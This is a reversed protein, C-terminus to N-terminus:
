LRNLNALPITASIVGNFFSLEVVADGKGDSRCSVIEGKHGAFLGAKIQVKMGRKFLGAPREWDFHGEAAKYSFDRVNKANMMWPMENGGVTGLVHEVTLLGAIAEHSMVCRVLVYGSLVPQTKPPLIRGRRRLEPGKRMPVCVEVGAAALVNEVVQERGTMVKLAFWSADSDARVAAKALLARKLRQDALQRDMKAERRALGFMPADDLQKANVAMM